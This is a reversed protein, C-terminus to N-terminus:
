QHILFWYGLTVYISIKGRFEVFFACLQLFYNLYIVKQAPSIEPIFRGEFSPTGTQMRGMNQVPDLPTNSVNM